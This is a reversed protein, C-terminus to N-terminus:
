EADQWSAEGTRLWRALRTVRGQCQHFWKTGHFRAAAREYQRAEILALTPAFAELGGAGLQFAMEALVEQRTDDLRRWWPCVHDLARIAEDIDEELLLNIATQSLPKLLNRGIGITPTGVLMTGPKLISGTRDDYPLARVGEAQRLTQQLRERNM